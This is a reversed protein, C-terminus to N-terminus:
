RDASSPPLTTWPPKGLLFSAGGVNFKRKFSGVISSVLMLSAKYATFVEQVSPIDGLGYRNDIVDSDRRLKKLLKRDATIGHSAVDDFLEYLNHIQRFNGTKHQNFAKLTREVALHINWLAGPRGAAENRVAKRAASEFEALVGDLLSDAVDDPPEVGMSNVRISRLATAITRADEILTKKDGPALSAVNPPKTLWALPDEGDEVEKPFSLWATEGPTEVRGRTLPVVLEVPLGRVLVFGYAHGGENRDLADGYHQRYWNQVHHYLIAFWPRTVYDTRIAKDEVVDGCRIELVLDDVITTAAFLMREGFSMDSQELRADIHPLIRNVLLELEDPKTTGEDGPEAM